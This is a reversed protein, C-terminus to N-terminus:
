GQLPPRIEQLTVNQVSIGIDPYVSALFNEISKTQRQLRVVENSLAGDLFLLSNDFDQRLTPRMRASHM